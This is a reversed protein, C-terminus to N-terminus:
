TWTCWVYLCAMFLSLQYRNKVNQECDEKLVLAVRDQVVRAPDSYSVKDLRIDIEIPLSFSGGSGGQIEILGANQGLVRVKPSLGEPAGLRLSTRNVGLDNLLNSVFLFQTEEWMSVLRRPGFMGVFHDPAIPLQKYRGLAEMGSFKEELAKRIAPRDSALVHSMLGSSGSKNRHTPPHNNPATSTSANESSSQAAEARVRVKKKNPRGERPKASLRAYVDSFVNDVANVFAVPLRLSGTITLIPVGDSLMGAVDLVDVPLIIRVRNVTIPREFSHKEFSDLTVTRNDPIRGWDSNPSKFALVEACDSQTHVYSFAAHQPHVHGLLAALVWPSRRTAAHLDRSGLLIKRIRLRSAADNLRWSVSEFVPHTQLADSVRAAFSHRLKHITLHATGSVLQLAKNLDDYIPSADVIKTPSEPDCFLPANSLGKSFERWQSKLDILIQLELASLTFVLPVQRRAATTKLGRLTDRRVIVFQFDELDVWDDRFLGMAEEERLGFRYAFIALAETCTRVRYSLGADDHIYQLLQQYRDEELYGPSCLAETADFAIEGWNVPIVNFQSLAFRHFNKLRRYVYISKEKSRISLVDAYFSVIEDERMHRLDQAEALAAFKSALADFYRRISSLSLKKKKHIYARDFLALCWVCLTYFIPPVLSEFTRIDKQLATYLDRRQNPTPTRELGREKFSNLHKHVVKLLERVQAKGRTSDTSLQKIAVPLGNTGGQPASEAPEITDETAQEACDAPLATRQFGHFALWDQWPLAASRVRGSLLAGLTGPLEIANRQGTLDCASSLFQNVSSLAGDLQVGLVKAIAEMSLPIPSALTCFTKKASLVQDLLNATRNSIRLRQVAQSIEFTEEENWEVYHKSRLTVLRFGERTLIRNLLKFDASRTSICLDLAALCYAEFNSIKSPQFTCFVANLQHELQEFREKSGVVTHRFPSEDKTARYYRRVLKIHLGHRDWARQVLWLFYAYRLYGLIEPSSSTQRILRASLEAAKDESLASLGKSLFDTTIKPELPSEDTTNAILYAAIMLRAQRAAKLQLRWHHAAQRQEALSESEFIFQGKTPHDMGSSTLSPDIGAKHWDFQPADRIGLSDCALAIARRVEIADDKWVRDSYDGHTLTAGDGHGLFSDILEVNLSLRHCQTRLWHRFINWPLPYGPAQYKNRAEGDIPTAKVGDQNRTLLFLFAPYSTASGEAIALVAKADDLLGQSQLWTALAPLHTSLYQKQFTEVVHSLLPVLRASSKLPSLKESFLAFLEKWDFTATTKWIDLNPRVGTTARLVADWHIALLNHFAIPDEANAAVLLESHLNQFGQKLFNEVPDMLSGGANCESVAVCQDLHATLDESRYAAYASSAPLGKYDSASFLRALLPDGSREYLDQGLAGALMFPGLRSLAPKSSVWKEFQGAVTGANAPWLDELSGLHLANKSAEALVRSCNASLRIAVSDAEPRILSWEIGEPNWHAPRRPPKKQATMSSLDISWGEEAQHAVGFPTNLGRRLSLGLQMSIEVFAALLQSQSDGERYTTNVLDDLAEREWPNLKQWGWVVYRAEAGLLLQLRNANVDQAALSKEPDSQVGALDDDDDDSSVPFSINPLVDSDEQPNTLDGIDDQFDSVTSRFDTDALAPGDTIADSRGKAVARLSNLFKIHKPAFQREAGSDVLRSSTFALHLSIQDFGRLNTMLLDTLELWDKGDLEEAAMRLPSCVENLFRDRFNGKRARDLAQVLIWIRVVRSWSRQAPHREHLYSYRASLMKYLYLHGTKRGFSSEVPHETRRLAGSLELFEPYTKFANALGALGFTNTGADRWNTLLSAARGIEQFINRLFMPEESAGLTAFLLDLAPLNQPSNLKCWNRARINPLESRPAISVEDIAPSEDSKPM